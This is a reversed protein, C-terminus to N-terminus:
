VLDLAKHKSYISEVMADLKKYDDSTLRGKVQIPEIIDLKLKSVCDALPEFLKGAWGYSGVFSAIKLKPRLVGALYATNVAAPHPGALVMSVGLVMTTADVLGMALDGLDGRIIDYVLTKIGKAELKESLYEIMEKTAGYMSVYPLLVLNKGEDKTWDEYLDLIDSPNNYVPGHSPCVFKVNLTKVLNTYKRCLMRFPMMIEAYYRKASHTLEESPKAFIDDFTYHAGLFDCTFLVSDELVHTFMTDPWHVNPAFIFQLTKDGLSLKDGDGIIHLRERPVFLMERLNDSCKSNTVVMADPYKELLAPISGSHDQEGHNAIIYDVKTIGNEDLNKLYEETKPPYMTDIIAVKESGKVIYSNYSTGHELPILEDFIARNEDNLGCYLINDVIKKFKM